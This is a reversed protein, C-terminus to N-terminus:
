WGSLNPAATHDNKMLLYDIYSAATSLYTPYTYMLGPFCYFPFLAMLLMDFVGNACGILVLRGMGMEFALSAIGFSFSFV